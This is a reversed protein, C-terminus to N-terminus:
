IAKEENTSMVFPLFHIEVSNCDIYHINLPEFLVKLKPHKFYLRILHENEGTDHCHLTLPTSRMDLVKEMPRRNIYFFDAYLQMSSINLIKLSPCCAVTEWLDIEFRWLQFNILDLRELRPLAAILEQLQNSTFGDDELLSLQRLNILSQLAPLRFEWISDNFTIREIDKARMGSVFGIQDCNMNYTLTQLKPLRMISECLGMEFGQNPIILEELMKLEGMQECEYRHTLSWCESMDLKRLYMLSDLHICDFVGYAKLNTLRPFLEAILLIVLNGNSEADDDNLTYKLSLVQPFKYPRWRKLYDLTVFHLDLEKVTPSIISLFDDLLGPKEEFSLFHSFDLTFSQQHQWTYRVNSSLRCTPEEKTAEFLSFQDIINLHRIILLHCDDNLADM